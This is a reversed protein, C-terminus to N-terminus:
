TSAREKDIRRILDLTAQTSRAEAQMAGFLTYAQSIQEQEDVIQGGLANELYLVSRRADLSALRFPACLGPNDTLPLAQLRITGSEILFTIWKLQDGLIEPSGIPRSLVSEDVVLWLFTGRRRIDELRTTRARVLDEIVETDSHPHRARILTRAYDATQVIGPILVSQYERIHRAKHELALADRFHEPVAGERLTDKWFRVLEGETAFLDDMKDVQTRNAVRTAREIHGVMGGTVGLRKGLRSQSFGHEVRLRRIEAGFPRWKAATNQTM